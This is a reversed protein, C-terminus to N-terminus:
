RVPPLTLCFFLNVQVISRVHSSSQGYSSRIRSVKDSTTTVKPLEPDMTPVPLQKPEPPILIGGPLERLRSDIVDEDGSLVFRQEESSTLASCTHLILIVTAIALIISNGHSSPKLLSM